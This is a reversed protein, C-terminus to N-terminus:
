LFHINFFGMMAWYLLGVVILLGARGHLPRPVTEFRLQDGLTATVYSISLWGFATAAATLLYEPWPMRGAHTFLPVGLLLLVGIAGTLAQQGPVTDTWWRGGTILKLVGFLGLGLFVYVQASLDELEMPILVWRQVIWLGLASLIYTGIIGLRARLVRGNWTFTGSTVDVVTALFMFDMLHKM